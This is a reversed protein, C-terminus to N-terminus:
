QQIEKEIKFQLEELIGTYHLYKHKCDIIEDRLKLLERNLKKKNEIFSNKEIIILVRKNIHEILAQKFITELQYGDISLKDLGLMDTLAQIEDYKNMLIMFRSLYPDLTNFGKNVDDLIRNFDNSSLVYQQKLRELCNSCYHQKRKIEERTLKSDCIACNSKSHSSQAKEFIMDRSSPKYKFIAIFSKVVDLAWGIMFGGITFLYILGTKYEKQIFYHGGFVGTFLTIFFMIVRNKTKSLDM